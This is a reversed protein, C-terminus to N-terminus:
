WGYREPGWATIKLEQKLEVCSNAPIDGGIVAGPALVSYAGVKAGPLFVTGVGTRCYDGIYVANAFAGARERRGGIRHTTEGDDFRLTGCVTGAGIDVSAGVAGYIEGYHYLYTRNMLMGGLFEAAHDVICDDGITCGDYIQCYNRVRARSGVVADGMFVAGNDIVTDDGVILNGDVRVNKGIYANKGLLVHGRIDASDSIASGTGASSDTLAGCRLAVLARNAELLHWPKDVDCYVGTGEVARVAGSELFRALAAEVYRECPAGEGVKMDPFYEPTCLLAREFARPMVLAAIQHTMQEGRHHAGVAALAGNEARACIWDSARTRVPYLLAAPAEQAYFARLTDPDVVTDGNLILFTDGQALRMGEYLTDASGLGPACIHVHVGEWAEFYGAIAGFYRKQTVIHVRAATVERLARINWAILPMNAAPRMTKSGVADFPFLKSGAGAALIIVERM